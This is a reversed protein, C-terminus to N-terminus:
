KTKGFHKKKPLNFQHPSPWLLMKKGKEPEHCSYCNAKKFWKYESLKGRNHLPCLTWDAKKNEARHCSLCDVQKQWQRFHRQDHDSDKVPNEALNLNTADKQGFTHKAFASVCVAAVCLTLGVFLRYM